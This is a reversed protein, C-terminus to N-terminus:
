GSFRRAHQARIRGSPFEKRAQVRCIAKIAANRFGDAPGIVYDPTAVPASAADLLSSSPTQPAQAAVANAFLVGVIAAYLLRRM